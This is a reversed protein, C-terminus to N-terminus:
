ARVFEIIPQFSESYILVLPCLYIRKQYIRELLDIQKKTRQMAKAPVNRKAKSSNETKAIKTNQTQVNRKARAPM